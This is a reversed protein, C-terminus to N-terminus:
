YRKTLSHSLSLTVLSFVPIFDSYIMIGPSPRVGWGLLQSCHDGRVSPHIGRAADNEELEAGAESLTPAAEYMLTHTVGDESEIFLQFDGVDYQFTILPQFIHLM